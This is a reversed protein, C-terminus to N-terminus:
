QWQPACGEDPSREVLRGDDVRLGVRCRVLEALAAPDITARDARWREVRRAGSTVIWAGGPDFRARVLDRSPIAFLQRATRADWIRTTEGGSTALLAGDPSFGLSVVFSDHAQFDRRRGDPLELISTRGDTWGVAIRKSDASWAIANSLAPHTVRHVLEGRDATWITLEDAAIALHRADPSFVAEQASAARMRLTALTELTDASVLLPDRPGSTQYVVLTRGDPGFSIADPEFDLRRRRVPAGTAADWLALERDAGSSAVRRGDPALAVCHTAGAHAEITLAPRDGHLDHIRISPDGASIAARRGDASLEGGCHAIRQEIPGALAPALSAISRAAGTALEVVMWSRGTSRLLRQGAYVLPPEEISSSPAVWAILRRQRALSFVRATGSWSATAVHTGDSSVDSGFVFGAHALQATEIGARADWVRVTGDGAATVLSAGDPTFAVRNVQATHGRLTHRLEGTRVDWLMATRDASSTAVLDGAPSLAVHTVRQEHGRLVLRPEGTGADWIRATGDLSATAILSGERDFRAFWVADTHGRLVAVRAGGRDWLTCEGSLGAGVIRDGRPSLEMYLVPSAADLYAIADGHALDLLAPRESYDAIAIRDGDFSFRLVPDGLRSRSYSVTVHDGTRTTWIRVQGAADVTAVREGDPSWAAGVPGEAHQLRALEIGRAADWIRATGDKSSTLVREGDPSFAASQVRARHGRLEAVDADFADLARAIMYRLAPSDAGGRYVEDFYALAARPDGDLLARRGQEEYSDLLQARARERERAADARLWLLVVVGAALVAFAGGVLGRRLRRGRRAEAASADAFAGELATLGPSGRRWRELEALADDRWLLGRPRRRDEWQRAASALQDRMRAGDADERIWRQVRPWAALLAEHAIEVQAGAEADVTFLLRAAILKDIVAGARDSALAERLEEIALQARTGEATVLRRFAERVLRQEDATLAAFAEEAHRGLAGGVGGMAEYAKRTLQRFRRDRLEWLRSATFSLLALAGPRGHVAGAMEPALEPDSLEYGARRAPEVITRALDDRSPNGLLFVAWSLRPGLAPLAEVRMLFDDRVTGIVRLPADASASLSALLAAFRAREHDDHCLTFLEELQDVVLVLGREGAAQAIRAAAIDPPGELLPRLEDDALGAARLRAALAAIPAAGPRMTLARWAPDLAPIVGAHVFSSKGTGSPGVVVQLAGLRLRNVLADIERERGVFREADATAFTALGLYPPAEGSTAAADGESAGLVHEGLWDWIAADHREFGAPAAVLRAGHRGRGDLVFLEPEAGPTPALVQVLPWLLVAVRGDRDVLAPQDEALAHARVAALPRRPRRVLGTWRETSAGRAVVLPHDLVFSAARLVRGLEAVRRALRDRLLESAGGPADGEAEIQVIGELPDDGGPADLLEVLAPVPHAAGRGIFPRALLRLLRVREGLDLERRRLARLLEALDPDDRGGRVQSRAALALAVLYRVLGRLLERAADRAQHLNRAADLAAVAEALPQPADAIWAEHIGRELKPLEGTDDGLGSAVRLSAALALASAPRDEPRKALAREFFRDLALDFGPGLSPVPARGHLEAYEELTPASFPRRGALAEYALVGLAYLDAAPGIPGDSWQEPAMYPPSGIAGATLATALPGGAVHRRDATLTDVESLRATTDPAREAAAGPAPEGALLKAIGLDLLKPLLRGAREIVMLNSPKLDRHVIGRDHATQVVEAIRELFPVLEGIPLPGRERLWRDLPTGHVMEMAIWLLGDDKEVGFAYVHAAYPHDLRSALQAERLFRQIVVEDARLRHHLVKVVAERGLLPQECRYVAAFGGQGIRERLVFEGVSRGSLEDRAGM